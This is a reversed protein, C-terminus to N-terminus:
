GRDTLLAEVFRTAPRAQLDAITGIQVLRGADLVAVRDALAGAECLDHTVLLVPLRREALVERLL